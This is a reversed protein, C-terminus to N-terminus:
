SWIGPLPSGCFKCKGAKINNQIIEYGRRGVATKGCRPCITNQAPHGPVNGVYVYHLGEARAIKHCRDLTEYPTPPLNKLRYTPFFRSFHLPVDRGVNTRVWRALDRIERDSDNLTPIVLYVIELWVGRNKILTIADLVPKLAGACIERYFNDRMSKLDVKIAPVEECLEILPEREIYGATVILTRVGRRNGERATDLVYETFVVPENYTAAILSLGNRRTLEVLKAPPMDASRVQEPTGQSLQWNQCNKCALNCGATGFSFIWAGPTFHFFPKKEIPDINVSAARSHVLTYYEGARNERVGCFGREAEGVECRRPCLLCRVKKNPLHRFHLAKHAQRGGAPASTGRTKALAACVQGPLEGLGVLALGSAAVAKLWERRTLAEM